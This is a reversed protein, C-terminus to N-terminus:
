KEVFLRRYRSLIKEFVDIVLMEVARNKVADNGAEDDLAAPERGVKLRLLRARRNGVFGRVAELVLAARKGHRAGVVDIACGRLEEYIEGVVGEEIMRLRLVAIGDEAADRLADVDDVLDGGDAGASALLILVRRKLIHGDDGRAPDIRRLGPRRRLHIATATSAAITSDASGTTSSRTTCGSVLAKM